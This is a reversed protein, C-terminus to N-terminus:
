YHTSTAAHKHPIINAEFVSSLTESLTNTFSYYASIDTAHVSVVNKM